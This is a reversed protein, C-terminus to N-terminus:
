TISKTVVQSVRQIVGDQVDFSLRASGYFQPELVETLIKHFVEQILNIKDINASTLAGM